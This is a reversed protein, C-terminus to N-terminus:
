SAGGVKLGSVDDLELPVVSVQDMYVLLEHCHTQIYKLVGPAMYVEAETDIQSSLFDLVAAQKEGEMGKLTLIRIDEPTVTVSALPLARLFESWEHTPFITKYQSDMLVSVRGLQSKLFGCAQLAAARSLATVVAIGDLVTYAAPTRSLSPQLREKVERRDLFEAEEPELALHTEAMTCVRELVSAKVRQFADRDAAELHVGGDRVQVTADPHVEKMETEFNGLQFLQLKVPDTIAIFDTLKLEARLPEAAEAQSDGSPSPQLFDFYPRVELDAGKLKHQQALVLDVAPSPLPDAM